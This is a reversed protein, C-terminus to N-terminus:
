IRNWNRLLIAADTSTKYRRMYRLMLREQVEPSNNPAIDSPLFIGKRGRYGVWSCYGCLVQLCHGYFLRKRHQFWFLVPSILLLLIASGIDFLRKNRRCTDTSITDLSDLYLAEKSLISESGIVFDGAAPAIKYEVGTTKLTAMLSIIEKLEVDAGCFVVEEVREVRILDQLRSAQTGTIVNERPIGMSLYLNRVREAQSESGIVLVNGRRRARLAYGKVDLVSLAWRILLTGVLTWASGALLLMRSYRQGEDLLSYFALLLLLGAGMGKVIRMPRVPKDYGGALWSACMLVLIYVPIVVQTYEAPYYDINNAWQTAWLQKLLVFGGYAVFFDALPVAVRGALRKLWSASARLWIACRLLANFLWANGGSFYRKVFISMANYFTYVYNMSGKKTSEGKYHIIHTEPLYFNKWGALHIRWSYDIDEGYMFYSEDLGGIQEYVERRFMLFAGPMIEIENTEDEPLHGMYYAAFRRSHPFLRILGSIKYFSAQPSPFGRKSEKLFNGDGDVMKVTLGGCEPHALMFDVCRVLTDKEVVTDPNLLLLCQGAACALAMNNAKAFGVNEHNEIVHVQPFDRRVMEVSGDVSDNDVVWVDLEVTSGDKLVRESGYVSELCQKLFYKVNYNVIVVSLNM